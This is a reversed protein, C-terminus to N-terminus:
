QDGSFLMNSPRKSKLEVTWKEILERQDTVENKVMLGAGLAGTRMRRLRDLHECTEPMGCELCDNLGRESACARMECGAAGGGKRCGPCVPTAQISALGKSFENFDFDKSVWGELGYGEVVDRFIRTLERLVGNGVVCSGCWIGCYGIQDKVNEFAKVNM